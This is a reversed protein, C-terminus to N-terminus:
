ATEPFWSSKTQLCFRSQQLISEQSNLDEAEYAAKSLGEDGSGVIELNGPSQLHFHVLLDGLAELLIPSDYHGFRMMGSVGKIARKM